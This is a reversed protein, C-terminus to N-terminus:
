FANAMAQATSQVHLSQQATAIRQQLRDKYADASDFGIIPSALPRGKPDLLVVTPTAFVDYRRVFVRARIRDGDFDGIKGGTNTSYERIILPDVQEEETLMPVIVQIKLQECYGCDRATFVMLIPAGISAALAGERSWDDSSALTAPGDAAFSNAVLMFSAALTALFLSRHGRMFIAM